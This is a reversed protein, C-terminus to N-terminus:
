APPQVAATARAKAQELTLLRRRDVTLMQGARVDGAGEVVLVLARGEDDPEAAIPQVIAYSTVARQRGDIDELTPVAYLVFTSV